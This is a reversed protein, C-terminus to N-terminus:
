KEKFCKQPIFEMKFIGPGSRSNFGRGITSYLDMAKARLSNLGIVISCEFDDM